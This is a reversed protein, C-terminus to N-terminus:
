VVTQFYPLMNVPMGVFQAALSLWAALKNGTVNLKELMEATHCPHLFYYPIGLVPHENQSIVESSCNRFSPCLEKIEPLTMKSGNARAGIFYIVPSGFSPSFCIHYEVVITCNDRESMILESKKVYLNSNNEILQFSDGLRDSTLVLDRSFNDFEQKTMAM